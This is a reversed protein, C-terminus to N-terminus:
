ETRLSQMPDVRAARRAPVWNALAATAVLLSVVVGLIFADRPDVGFLMDGILRTIAFSAAVGVAVGALVVALMRGVAATMIDAARAGLAVRIGIERTRQTVLYSAVGYAGGLALVLALGAFIGLLWSYAARVSMSRSVAEEMTRVQFLPLDADLERVAARASAVVSNPPVRTRVSVVMSRTPSQALPLYIGPRM